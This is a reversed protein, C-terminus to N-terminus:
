QGGDAQSGANRQEQSAPAPGGGAKARSKPDGPCSSRSGGSGQIAQSRDAGDPQREEGCKSNFDVFIEAIPGSTFAGISVTRVPKITGTSNVVTEVRGRSVLATTYRPAFRKRFWAAAPVSAAAVSGILVGLIALWTLLRRMRTGSIQFITLSENIRGQGGSRRRRNRVVQFRIVRGSM